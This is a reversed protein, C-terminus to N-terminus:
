LSSLVIEDIMSALHSCDKAYLAGPISLKKGVIIATGGFFMTWWLAAADSEDNGAYVISDM